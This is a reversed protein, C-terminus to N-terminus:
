PVFARRIRSVLSRSEPVSLMWSVGFAVMVGSAALAGGGAIEFLRGTISTGGNPLIQQIPAAVVLGAVVAVAWRWALRFPYRFRFACGAARLAFLPAVCFGVRTMANVALAGALGFPVVLAYVLLTSIVQVAALALYTQRVRHVSVAAKRLIAATGSVPLLVYLGALLWVLTELQEPPFNEGGWLGSLVREAGALVAMTVIATVALVRALATEILAVTAPSNRAASESFSTFFPISLPRLFIGETRSWIMTAYRFLAFSGQPLHSLAADLAFAFVQTMAVYPLTTGLKGFLGVGRASDPLELSPRYRYECRRLLWLIAIIEVTASCWLSVVLAWAGLPRAFLALAALALLRALLSVTEPAGFLREANALTKLLEAAVHIVVLPLVWRFMEAALAIDAAGFGPVRLRAVQPALFWLIVGAAALVLLFRNVLATYAQYAEVRGRSERVTHYSPLLVESVQGTQALSSVSAYLGIAALYVEVPRGTGFFYAILITSAVAVLASLVNLVALSGFTRMGVGNM